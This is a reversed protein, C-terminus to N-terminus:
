SGPSGQGGGPAAGDDGDQAASRRVRALFLFFYVLALAIAAGHVWLPLPMVWQVLASLGLLGVVLFALYPATWLLVDWAGAGTDLGFYALVGRAGKDEEAGPM